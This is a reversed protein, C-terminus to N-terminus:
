PKASEKDDFEVRMDQEIFSAFARAKM